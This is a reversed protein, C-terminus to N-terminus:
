FRETLASFYRLELDKIHALCSENRFRKLFKRKKSFQGISHPLTGLAILQTFGASCGAVLLSMTGTCAGVGKSRASSPPHIDDQQPAKREKREMMRMTIVKGSERQKTMLCIWTVKSQVRRTSATTICMM